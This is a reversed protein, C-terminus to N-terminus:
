SRKSTANEKQLNCRPEVRPTCTIIEFVNSNGELSFAVIGAVNKRTLCDIKDLKDFVSLSIYMTICNGEVHQRTPSTGSETAVDEPAEQNHNQRKMVSQKGGEFIVFM